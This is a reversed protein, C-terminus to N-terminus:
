MRGNETETYEPFLIDKTPRKVTETSKTRRWERPTSASQLSLVRNTSRLGIGSITNILHYIHLDNDCLNVDNFWNRKINEVMQMAWVPM